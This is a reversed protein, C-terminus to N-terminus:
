KQWAELYYFLVVAGILVADVVLVVSVLGSANAAVLALNPADLAIAFGVLKRVSEKCTLMMYLGIALMLFAAEYYM